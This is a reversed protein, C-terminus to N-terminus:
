ASLKLESESILAPRAVLVIVEDLDYMTQELSTYTYATGLDEVHFVPVLAQVMLSQTNRVRIFELRGPNPALRPEVDARLLISAQRTSPMTDLWSAAVQLDWGRKNPFSPTLM